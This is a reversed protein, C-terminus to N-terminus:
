LVGKLERILGDWRGAGNESLRFSVYFEVAGDMTVFFCRSGGTVSEGLCIGYYEESYPINKRALFRKVRAALEEATRRPLDIQYEIIRAARMVVKRIGPFLPVERIGLMWRAARSLAESFVNM